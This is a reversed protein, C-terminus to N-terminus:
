IDARRRDPAGCRWREVKWGAHRSQWRAVEGMGAMTCSMVSVQQPDYLLSFDRCHRDAPQWAPLCATILLEVFM